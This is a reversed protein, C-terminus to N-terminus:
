GPTRVPTAISVSLGRSTPASRIALATAAEATYGPSATTTTSKPVAMVTSAMDGAPSKRPPVIAGPISVAAVASNWDVACILLTSSTAGGDTIPLLVKVQTWDPM